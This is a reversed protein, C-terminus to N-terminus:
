NGLAGEKYDWSGVFQTRPANITALNNRLSSHSLNLQEIKTVM